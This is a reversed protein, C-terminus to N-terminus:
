SVSLSGGNNATTLSLIFPGANKVWDQPDIFDEAGGSWCTQLMETNIVGPNLAVTALGPPLEQALASNFGEIAWKTTCYPGVEPSTSRGWGSSFNVIIGGGHKEMLPVFESIVNHVGKINVDVIRSFEEAPVDWLPAPKNIMAANNILYDPNVGAEQLKRRWAAVDERRTVDVAQFHHPEGHAQRLEEVLEARTGCGAVRLGNEIFFETMARGLGRTCGTIVVTKSTSEFNMFDHFYRFERYDRCNAGGLLM